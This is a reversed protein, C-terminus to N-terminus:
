PRRFANGLRERSEPNGRNPPSRGNWSVRTKMSSEGRRWDLKAERKQHLRMVCGAGKENLLALMEMLLLRPRRRPSGNGPHTRRSSAARWTMVMAPATLYDDVTGLAVDLLAVVGMVPFGCGPKQASPQPYEAQNFVTDTLQLSTGDVLKVRYGRWRHHEELRAEGFMALRSEVTALFEELPAAQGPLFASTCFSPLALAAAAYWRQVLTVAKACSTNGELIQVGVGLFSWKPFCGGGGTARRQRLRRSPCSRASSFGTTPFRPPLSRTM